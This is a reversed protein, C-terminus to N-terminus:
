TLLGNRILYKIVDKECQDCYELNHWHITMDQHLTKYHELNYKLAYMFKDKIEIDNELKDVVDQRLKFTFKGSKEDIHLILDWFCIENVTTM